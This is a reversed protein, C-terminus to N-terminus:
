LNKMLEDYSKEFITGWTDLSDVFNSRCRIIWPRRLSSKARKRRTIERPPARNEPIHPGLKVLRPSFIFDTM